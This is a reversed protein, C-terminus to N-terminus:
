LPIMVEKNGRRLMKGLLVLNKSVKYVNYDYLQNTSEDLAYKVGEIEKVKLGIRKEKIGIEERMQEDEAYTPYSGFENMTTQGYGYCVLNEKANSKSYLSCDIATEKVSTLIQTILNNKISSIEFLSEDTTIPLNRNLKSRDEMVKLYRKDNKQSDSYTAIYIFVKLTRMEEPLNKHSCIRRARGVVQEIRVMHWYPEVIHVYRTNELNIGEAGSSTIMIIKVIEGLFNNEARERLKASLNPPVFEWNSNYINRIMEKEEPTETGTYLVFKPKTQDEEEELLIWEEGSKKLKFEAFGNAMLVLRLIGIGEMSRFASYVLHLGKHEPDQLKELLNLFKPSYMKLGEKSLYQDKGEYLKDLSTQIQKAYEASIYDTESTDALDLENDDAINDYEYANVAGEEQAEEGSKKVPKPPLPRVITDPFAFNCRARSFVRYSSATKFVDMAKSSKPERAKEEARAKSYELIQHDSMEVKIIHYPKDDETFEFQPLLSEQASRFYSTLGLIRKKFVDMRKTTMTNTDIFMNTFAIKQDPLCKNPEMKVDQEFEISNSQLINKITAVFDADSINGQEDLHIGKYRDSYIQAGGKHINDEGMNNALQMRAEDLEKEMEPPISSEIPEPNQTSDMQVPKQLEDFLDTEMDHEHYKRNRKTKRNSKIVVRKKSKPKICVMKPKSKGGKQEEELNQELNQELKKEKTEELLENIDPPSEEVPQDIKVVSTTPLSLGPAIKQGKAPGPKKMNIFGFPNRTITLKENSYDIYDYSRFDAKDFMDIIKERNIKERSKITFTWTNIYGRLINYLIGIENPYNIIPTGSMLVIRVDQASMLKDYLQYAISSKYNLKNMIRSILNHAEDILVVSHDFPNGNKVLENYKIRTLGNYNIDIYKSRIMTDLQADLQKQQESTLDGYNATKKTTNMLWAGNNQVITEMPLSLTKSLMSIYEPKGEVSIFEWYQNKKYLEDGCKKLESFFNMKLSAPTLVYVKKHSKMGEAIAISTCTKGAGLGHYLLLGRYPTYLNLYDRVIRQHIFLGFNASRTSTCSVEEKDMDLIEKNYESFLKILNQSYLKRNTLYYSPARIILKDLPQKKPIRQEIPQGNIERLIPAKKALLLLSEKEAKGIRKQRPKKVKEIEIEEKEKPEKEKPEIEIEEKEKEAEISPFEEDLVVPNEIPLEEVVKELEEEEPKEIVKDAVKEVPPESVIKEDLEELVKPPKFPEEIEVPKGIVLDSYEATDDKYEYKPTTAHMKGRTFDFGLKNKHVVLGLQLNVKDLVLKRNINMESRKDVVSKNPDDKFRVVVNINTKPVPKLMLKDLNTNEANMIFINYSWLINEFLKSSVFM